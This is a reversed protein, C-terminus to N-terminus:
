ICTNSMGIGEFDVGGWAGSSTNLLNIVPVTRCAAGLQLHNLATTQTRLNLSAHKLLTEFYQV